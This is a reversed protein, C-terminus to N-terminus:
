QSFGLKVSNQAWWSKWFSTYQDVPLSPKAGPMFENSQATWFPGVPGNDIVEGGANALLAYRGLWSAAALQAAADKSDLFEVMVPLVAKTGIKALAAVAAGDVGAVTTHLEALQKLVPIWSADKPYFGIAMIVDFFRPTSSMAEMNAMFVQMAPLSGVRLAAILGTMRQSSSSSQLLPAVDDAVEQAPRGQSGRPEFTSLFASNDNVSPTLLSQYWRVLYGVLRDDLTRAGAPPSIDTLPLYIDGSHYSLRNRPLIQYKGDAAKLFWVGTTGVASPPMTMPGLARKGSAAISAVIELSQTQGKLYEVINLQVTVDPTAAGGPEQIAQLKAIVVVDATQGLVTIPPSAQSWAPSVLFAAVAIAFLLKISLMTKSMDLRSIRRIGEM